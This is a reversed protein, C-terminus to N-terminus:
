TSSTMRHIVEKYSRIVLNEDYKREALDRSARSLSLREAKKLSIYLKIKDVLSKASKAEFLFGNVGDVVVEKCGPVNAALLARGMAAGELLTRPTGERYSPLVVVEHNRIFEKIQDTHEEYLIWGKAVWRDLDTKSISRAHREDLRGVLTFTIGEDHEFYSAAEAFEQVGKEVILRSVMLFRTKEDYTPASYQFAELDIGSGPLIGMRDKAIDVKSVFLDRDDENQFFVHSANKFAKKYLRMAVKGAVGKVLFVTGLGSVNCIVKTEVKRSALCSYINSKITYALAVVPREKKFVRELLKLYKLDEVPNKGTGNLPTEIWQVGWDVVSNTYEDRPSLVLVEDGNSLFHHVLGKRFNYINWTTNAVFAIKM